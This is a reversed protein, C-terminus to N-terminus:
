VTLMVGCMCIYSAGFNFGIMIFNRSRLNSVGVYAPVLITFGVDPSSHILSVVNQKHGKDHWYNGPCTEIIGNVLTCKFFNSSLIWQRFCCISVDATCVYVPMCKSNVSNIDESIIAGNLKTSRLPFTSLDHLWVM